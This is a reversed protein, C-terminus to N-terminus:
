MFKYNTKVEYCCRVEFQMILITIAFLFVEKFKFPTEDFSFVTGVM